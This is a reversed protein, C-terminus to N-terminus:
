KTPVIATKDFVIEVGTAVRLTVTADTVAKVTGHIGGTTVVDQGITLANRFKNLEKQQKSQPRFFFFYMIAFIAVIMLINAYGNPDNAALLTM